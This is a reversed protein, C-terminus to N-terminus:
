VTVRRTAVTCACIQTLGIVRASRARRRGLRGSRHRITTRLLKTSPLSGHKTKPDRLELELILEIKCHSLSAYPKLTSQCVPRLLFGDLKNITQAFQSVGRTIMMLYKYDLNYHYNSRSGKIFVGPQADTVRM